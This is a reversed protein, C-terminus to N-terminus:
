HRRTTSVVACHCAVTWNLIYNDIGKINRSGPRRCASPVRAREGRRIHWGEHYEQEHGSILVELILSGTPLRLLQTDEDLSLYIINEYKRGSTPVVAPAARSISQGHQHNSSLRSRPSQHCVFNWRFDRDLSLTSVQNSIPVIRNYSSFKASPRQQKVLFCM